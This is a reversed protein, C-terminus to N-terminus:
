FEGLHNKTQKELVNIYYMKTTERHKHYNKNQGGIHSKQKGRQLEYSNQIDSDHLVHITFDREKDPRQKTSNSAHSNLAGRM